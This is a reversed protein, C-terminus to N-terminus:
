QISQIKIGLGNVHCIVGLDVLVLVVSYLELLKYLYHQVDLVLCRIVLLLFQHVSEVYATYIYFLRIYYGNLRSPLETIYSRVTLARNYPVFQGFSVM